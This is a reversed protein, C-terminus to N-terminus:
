FDDDEDEDKKKGYFVPPVELSRKAAEALSAGLPGYDPLTYAITEAATEARYEFRVVGGAEPDDVRRMVEIEQIRELPLVRRVQANEADLAVLALPMVYLRLGRPDVTWAGFIDQAAPWAPAPGYHIYPRHRRYATNVEPTAIQKLARVLGQMYYRDARVELLHWLGGSEFHLWITNTGPQYKEPRGFWRLSDRAFHIHIDMKRTRPYLHLGDTEVSLLCDTWRTEPQPAGIVRLRYPNRMAYPTGLCYLPKRAQIEQYRLRLSRGLLTDALWDLM